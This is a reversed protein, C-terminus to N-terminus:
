LFRLPSGAFVAIAFAVLFAPVFPIGDKVSITIHHKKGLQKLEDIKKQPIGLKNAVFVTKNAVVIDQTIWDGELLENPTAKRIMCKEVSKVFLMVHAIFPFFIALILAM